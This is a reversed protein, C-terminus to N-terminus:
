RGHLFLAPSAFHLPMLYYGRVNLYDRLCFPTDAFYAWIDGPTPLVNSGHTLSTFGLGIPMGKALQAAKAHDEEYVVTQPGPSYNMCEHQYYLATVPEKAQQFILYGSFLIAGAVILWSVRRRRHHSRAMVYDLQAKEGLHGESM